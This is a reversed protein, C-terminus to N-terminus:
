FDFSICSEYYNILLDPFHKKVIYEPLIMRDMDDENAKPSDINKNEHIIDFFLFNDVEFCKVIRLNFNQQSDVNESNQLNVPLLIQTRTNDSKQKPKSKSNITVKPKKHQNLDYNRYNGDTKPYFSNSYNVIGEAITAFPLDDDDVFISSPDVQKPTKPQLHFTPLIVELSANMPIETLDNQEFAEKQQSKSFPLNPPEYSYSLLIKKNQKASNSVFLDEPSSPIQKEKPKKNENSKQIEPFNFFSDIEYDENFEPIEDNIEFVLDEIENENEHNEINSNKVHFSLKKNSIFDLSIKEQKKAVNVWYNIVSKDDPYTFSPIWRRPRM